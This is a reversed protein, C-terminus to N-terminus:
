FLNLFHLDSIYQSKIYKETLYVPYLHNAWRKDVGYCVPNRENIINATITDIEDTELGNESENGTMLMKELELM